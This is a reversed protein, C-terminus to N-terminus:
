RIDPPPTKFCTFLPFDLGYLGRIPDRFMRRLLM